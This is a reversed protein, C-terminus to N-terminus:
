GWSWRRGADLGHGVVTNSGDSRCLEEWGAQGPGEQSGGWPYLGMAEAAAAADVTGPSTSGDTAPPPPPLQLNPGPLVGRLGPRLRIRVERETM